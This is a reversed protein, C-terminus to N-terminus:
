RLESLEVSGYILKSQLDYFFGAASARKEDSKMRKIQDERSANEDEYAFTDNDICRIITKVLRHFGAETAPWTGFLRFSSLTKWEDCTNLILIRKM